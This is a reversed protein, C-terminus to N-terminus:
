LSKSRRKNKKTSTEERQQSFGTASTQSSPSMMVPQKKEKECDFSLRIEGASALISGEKLLLLPPPLRLLSVVSVLNGNEDAEEVEKEGEGVKEEEEVEVDEGVTNSTIQAM